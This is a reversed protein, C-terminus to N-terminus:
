TQRYQHRNIRSVHNGNALISTGNPRVTRKNETCVIIMLQLIRLCSLRFILADQASLFRCFERAASDDGRIEGFFFFCAQQRVEVIEIDAPASFGETLM